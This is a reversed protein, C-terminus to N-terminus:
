FKTFRIFAMLCGSVRCPVLIPPAPRLVYSQFVIRADPGRWGWDVSLLWLWQNKMRARASNRQSGWVLFGMPLGTSSFCGLPPGRNEVGGKRLLSLLCPLDFLYLQLSLWSLRMAEHGAWLCWPRHISSPFSVKLGPRLPWKLSGLNGEWESGCVFRPMMPCWWFFERGDWERLFMHGSVIRGTGQSLVLLTWISVFCCLYM